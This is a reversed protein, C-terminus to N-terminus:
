ESHGNLLAIGEATMNLLGESRELTFEAVFCRAKREVLWAVCALSKTESLTVTLPGISSGCSSWFM